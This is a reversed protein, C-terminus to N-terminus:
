AAKWKALRQKNHNGDNTKIAKHNIDNLITKQDIKPKTIKIMTTKNNESKEFWLKKTKRQTTKTFLM